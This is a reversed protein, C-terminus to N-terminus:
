LAHALCERGGAQVFKKLLQVGDDILDPQVVLLDGSQCAALAIEIALMGGSPSATWAILPWRQHPLVVSPASPLPVADALCEVLTALDVAPEARRVELSAGANSHTM